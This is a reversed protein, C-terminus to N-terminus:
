QKSKIVQVSENYCLDGIKVVEDLGFCWVVAGLDSM